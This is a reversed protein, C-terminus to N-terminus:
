RRSKARINFFDASSVNAFPGDLGELLKEDVDARAQRAQEEILVDRVYEGADAYRGRAGQKQVFDGLPDSLSIHITTTMTLLIVNITFVTLSPGYNQGKGTPGTVVANFFGAVIIPACNLRDARVVV